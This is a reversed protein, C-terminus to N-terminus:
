SAKSDSRGLRTSSTELGRTVALASLDVKSNVILVENTITSLCRNDVGVICDITRDDTVKTASLIERTRIIAIKM